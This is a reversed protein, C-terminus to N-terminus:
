GRIIWIRLMLALMLVFAAIIQALMALMFLSSLMLFMMM